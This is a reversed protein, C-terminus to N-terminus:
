DSAECLPPGPELGNWDIRSKHHVFHCQSLNEKSNKSKWKNTDNWRAEGDDPSRVIPGDTAATWLCLRAM